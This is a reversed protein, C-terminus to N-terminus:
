VSSLYSNLNGTRQLKLKQRIRSRAVEISKHSRGTISAIERTNLNMRLFACIRQEWSTLEPHKTGLREYFAPHVKIFQTEFERWSSQPMDVKLENVISVIEEASPRTSDKLEQLRKILRTILENKQNLFLMKSALERNKGELEDEIEHLHQINLMERHSYLLRADRSRKIMLVLIIACLVLGAVSAVSVINRNKIKQEQYSAKNRLIENEKEKQAFDYQAVMRNIAKSQELHNISDSHSLYKKYWNLADAFNGMKEFGESLLLAADKKLYPQNLTHALDYAERAFGVTQSHNGEMLFVKAQWLRINALLSLNGSKMASDSATAFLAGAKKYDNDTYHNKGMLFNCEALFPRSGIENAVSELKLCYEKAKSNLGMEFYLDALNYYRVALQSKHQLLEEIDTSKTIYELAKDYENVLKMVVGMNLLALSVAKQNGIRLYYELATEFLGAGEELKGQECLLIGLNIYIDSIMLSDAFLEAILLCERFCSDSKEYNGRRKHTLAKAHLADYKGMNDGTEKFTLYSQEFLDGASIFDNNVYRIYGIDFLALGTFGPLGAARSIDLSRQYYYEARKYEDRYYFINGSYNLANIVLTYYAKELDSVTSLAKIEYNLGPNFAAQYYYLASDPNTYHVKRGKNLYQSILITDKGSIDRAYAEHIGFALFLLFVSRIGSYRFRM